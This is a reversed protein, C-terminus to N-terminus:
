RGRKKQASVASRHSRHRPAVPEEPGFARDYHTTLEEDASSPRDDREETEAMEEPPSWQQDYPPITGGESSPHKEAPRKAQCEVCNLAFPIAILREVPIPEHCSMCIGYKGQELRSLAEDVSKLKEEASAILGAHTEVEASSRAADMEDGPALESEQEQEARYERIREYTEDRMRVLMNQLMERRERDAQLSQSAM